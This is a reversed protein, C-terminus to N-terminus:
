VISKHESKSPIHQPDLLNIVLEDAQVNEPNPIGDCKQVLRIIMFMNRRLLSTKYIWLQSTKYIKMKNVILGLLRHFLFLIFIVLKM